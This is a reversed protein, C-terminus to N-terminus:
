NKNLLTPLLSYIFTSPTIKYEPLNELINTDITKNFFKKYISNMQFHDCENLNITLDFRGDRVFASDLKEYYNTTVIFISGNQTLSGQLLNLLCELTLKDNENENEDENFKNFYQ